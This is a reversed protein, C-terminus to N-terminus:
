GKEGVLDAYGRGDTEKSTPHGAPAWRDYGGTQDALEEFGVQALAGAARASRGGSKCGIVLKDSKSFRHAVEEVFHLNPKMGAPTMKMFPINFAGEPHGGDFEPVSRVDLYVYGEEQVMRLAEEPTVRKITVFGGERSRRDQPPFGDTEIPTM